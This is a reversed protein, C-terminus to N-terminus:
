WAVNDDLPCPYDGGMSALVVSWENLDDGMIFSLEGSGRIVWHERILTPNSNLINVHAIIYEFSQIFAELGTFHIYIISFGAKFITETRKLFKETREFRTSTSIEVAVNGIIFDVNYREVAFQQVFPINRSKLFELFEQEGKGTAVKLSLQSMKAFKTRYDSTQLVGRVTDNATKTLQKKENITMKGMRIFNAQSGDRIVVGNEVLRKKVSERAINYRKSLELISFGQGYLIKLEEIPLEKFNAPKAAYKNFKTDIGKARLFKSLNDASCSLLSGIQKLTMGQQYLTVANDVFQTTFKRAM